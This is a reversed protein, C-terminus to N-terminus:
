LKILKKRTAVGNKQFEIMYAGKELFGLDLKHVISFNRIHYEESYAVSGLMNYITIHYKGNINSNGDLLVIRTFPNPSVSFNINEDLTENNTSTNIKLKEASFRIEAFGHCDGVFNKLSTILVYKAKPIGIAKWDMGEYDNKGPGKTLDFKGASNWTISDESYDILVEASGWDLHSPDNVNWIKFEHIKYLADFEYLIWHSSPLSKNPNPKKKCSIWADFWNTSHREPFCQSYISVSILNLLAIYILRQM